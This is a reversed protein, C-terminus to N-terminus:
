LKAAKREADHRALMPKMGPLIQEAGYDRLETYQRLILSYARLKELRKTIIGNLIDVLVWLGLCCVVVILFWDPIVITTM